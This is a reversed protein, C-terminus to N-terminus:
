FFVILFLILELRQALCGLEQGRQGRVGLPWLMLSRGGGWGEQSCLGAGQLWVLDMCECGALDPSRRPWVVPMRHPSGSMGCGGCCLLMRGLLGGHYLGHWGCSRTGALVPALSSLHVPRPLLVEGCGKEEQYGPAGPGQATVFRGWQWRSPEWGRRRHSVLGHLLAACRVMWSGARQGRRRGQGQARAQVRCPQM